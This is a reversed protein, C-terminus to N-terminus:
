IVYNFYLKTGDLLIYIMRFPSKRNMGLFLFLDRLNRALIIFETSLIKM